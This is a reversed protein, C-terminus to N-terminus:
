LCNACIAAEKCKNAEYEFTTENTIASKEVNDFCTACLDCKIALGHLITWISVGAVIGIIIAVIISDTEYLIEQNEIMWNTFYLFTDIGKVQNENTLWLHTHKYLDHLGKEIAGTYNESDIMKILVRIKNLYGRVMNDSKFEIYGAEVVTKLKHLYHSYATINVIHYESPDVSCEGEEVVYYKGDQEVIDVIPSDSLTSDQYNASAAVARNNSIEPATLFDMNETCGGFLVLGVIVFVLLNRKM